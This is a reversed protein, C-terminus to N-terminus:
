SQIEDNGKLMEDCEWRFTDEEFTPLDKASKYYKM